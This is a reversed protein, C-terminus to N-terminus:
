RQVAGFVEPFEKAAIDLAEATSHTKRLETIRATAKDRQRELEEAAFGTKATQARAAQATAPDGFFRGSLQQLQDSKDMYFVLYSPARGARIDMQTDDDASLFIEDTNIRQDPEGFFTGGLATFFGMFEDLDDPEIDALEGNVRVNVEAVLQEQMWDLSGNVRPYFNEPPLRMLRANGTVRSVGFTRKLTAAARAKAVGEDGAESFEATFERRYLSMMLDVQEQRPALEPDDFISDDFETILDSADLTRSLRNAEANRTKRREIQEPTRAAVMKEAADEASLGVRAHHRFEAIAKNVGASGQYPMFANPVERQVQEAFDMAAALREPDGGSLAGRVVGFITKPVYGTKQALSAAALQATQDLPDADGILAKFTADVDNREKTDYANFFADPDSLKTIIAQSRANEGARANLANILTAQDGDDLTPDNLVEDTTVDEGAAIRVRYGEMAELERQRERSYWQTVLTNAKDRVELDDIADLENDIRGIDSSKVQMKRQTFRRLDGVTFDEFGEIIPANAKISADAILGKIPTDESSTLVKVADPHGLFWAMYETGNNIPVGAANLAAANERRIEDRAALEAGPQSKLALIENDSLGKAFDANGRARLNKIAGVFTGDTIQFKGSASSLLEGTEPDRPVANPDGSSEAFALRTNFDDSTLGDAIMRADVTKFTGNLLGHLRDRVKPDLDIDRVALELDNRQQESLEQVGGLDDIQRALRAAKADGMLARAVGEADAETENIFPAKVRFATIEMVEAFKEQFEPSDGSIQFLSVADAFAMKREQSTTRDAAERSRVVQARLLGNFVESAAADSRVKVDTKLAPPATKASLKALDSAAAQFGQPNFEFQQALEAMSERLDLRQQALFHAHAATNHTAAMEGGLLSREDVRLTGNEDRYVANAGQERAEQLAAPRILQAIDAAADALVAFGGPGRPGVANFSSLTGRIDVRPTRAM